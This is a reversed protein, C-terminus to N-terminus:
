VLSPSLDYGFFWPYVLSLGSWETFPLIRYLKKEKNEVTGSVFIRKLFFICRSFQLSKKPAYPNHM